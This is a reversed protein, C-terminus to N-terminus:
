AVSAKLLRHAAEILPSADDVEPALALLRKVLQETDSPSAKKSKPDGEQLKSLLQQQVRLSPARVGKKWGAISGVSVELDEALAADSRYGKKKRYKALDEFSLLQWAAKRRGM